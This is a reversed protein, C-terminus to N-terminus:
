LSLPVLIVGYHGVLSDFDKFAWNCFGILSVLINPPVALTEQGEGFISGLFYVIM